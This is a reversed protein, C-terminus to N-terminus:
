SVGRGAHNINYVRYYSKDKLIEQDAETIPFAATERKRKYNDKTFYRSDVLAIDLTVMIILLFYFVLSFSKEV